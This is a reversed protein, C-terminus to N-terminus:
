PAAPSAAQPMPEAAAASASARLKLISVEPPVGFRVPLHSTGIGTAIFLDTQELVHGAAYRENGYVSPVVLRGLLPLKVQGGHTHGAVLLNIRASVEPFVDPCHTFAIIPASDGVQALTGHLDPADSLFDALGILWFPTRGATISEVRNDDFHISSGEILARLMPLDLAHDHNGLVLHVGLPARLADLRATILEPALQSGGLVSNEYIDGTILVLDPKAANSLAVVRDIKEPTIYPAGAHLDTIVAIRLGDLSQPWHQLPLEYEHVRISAPEIWFGWVAPVLGALAAILVLM